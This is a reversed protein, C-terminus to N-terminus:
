RRAYCLIYFRNPYRAGASNKDQLLLKALEQDNAIAQMNSVTKMPLKINPFAKHLLKLLPKGMIATFKSNATERTVIDNRQDVLCTAIIGAIIECECAVQYALM